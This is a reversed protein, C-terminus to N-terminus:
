RRRRSRRALLAAISLFALGGPAPVPLGFHITDVSVDGSPDSLLASDFPQTSVIGGFFGAGSSGFTTSTYVLEDGSYLKIVLAGPFHVGISTRPQDFELTIPGLLSTAGAGDIVYASSNLIFDNGDPFTVGLNAYQDSLLTGQPYELFSITQSQELGGIAAFWESRNTFEAVQASTPSGFSITGFVAAIHLSTWRM